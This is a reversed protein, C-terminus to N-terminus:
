QVIIKESFVKSDSKIRILYVGKPKESLDVPILDESTKFEMLNEGFSNFIEISIFDQKNNLSNIWLIGSTPNPYINVVGEKNVKEDTKVIMGNNYVLCIDQTGDPNIQHLYLIISDTRLVGNGSYSLNGGVVSYSVPVLFLSDDACNLNAVITDEYGFIVGTPIGHFNSILIQNPTIESITSNWLYSTITDPNSCHRVGYIGTYDPACQSFSGKVIIIFLVIAILRKM